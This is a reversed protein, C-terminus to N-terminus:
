MADKVTLGTKGPVRQLDSDYFDKYMQYVHNSCAITWMGWGKPKIAEDIFKMYRTRYDEIAAMEEKSCNTFTAGSKGKSICKIRM